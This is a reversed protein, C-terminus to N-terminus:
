SCPELYIDLNTHLTAVSFMILGLKRCVVYALTADELSFLHTDMLPSVEHKAANYVPLLRNTQEWTSKSLSSQVIRKPLAQGLTVKEGEAKAIRKVLGEIHLSSMQIIYRRLTPLDREGRQSYLSWAVACYHLPRFISNDELVHRGRNNCSVRTMAPGGLNLDFAALEGVDFYSHRLISALQQFEESTLLETALNRLAQEYNAQIL